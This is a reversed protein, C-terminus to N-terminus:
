GPGGHCWHVLENEPGRADSGVEDMAPVVNGDASSLHLLFDVSQRVDYEISADSRLVHPFMLLM